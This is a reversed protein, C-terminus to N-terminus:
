TSVRGLWADLTTVLPPLDVEVTDWVLDLDIDFYMHVLRHRMGVIVRWPVGPLGSQTEPSVKSGAEGVIELAKVLALVLMGDRDLDARSRGVAFSIAAKSADSM